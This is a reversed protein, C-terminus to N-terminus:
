RDSRSGTERLGGLAMGLGLVTKGDRIEGARVRRVAEEAPLVVVSMDSEGPDRDPDGPALEEALFLNMVESLIGPSPYVIGLPTLKGARYGTEERLEREACTRPDEGDELTGAPLELLVEDVAFRYQRVFVVSGDPLRPVVVAAGPHEVLERPLERGEADELIV